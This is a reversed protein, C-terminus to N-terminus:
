NLAAALMQMNRVGGANVVDSFGMQSLMMAAMGSRAGSACYLIISEHPAGVENVRFQLEQVPINVAGAFHGGAFEMPSRVDVIRAGNKVKHIIQEM